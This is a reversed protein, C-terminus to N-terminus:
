ACCGKERLFDSMSFEGEPKPQCDEDEWGRATLWSAPYPIFKGGEKLWDACKKKAELGAMVAAHDAARLKKWSTFASGKNIRKPYSRWFAEFAESYGSPKEVADKSADYIGEKGKGEGQVRPSAHFVRAPRTSDREKNNISQHQKFSPIEAYPKGDVEYVVVLGADLLEGTMANIDCNDAPFYRMKLTKPKWDLRGERDAECWLAIYLLRAIPTLGVIDESTFFEPKVTRIRSM